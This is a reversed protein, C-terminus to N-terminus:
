DLLDQLAELIEPHKFQFGAKSLARPLVKQGNLLVDAFEGMVAKIMFGPAPLFAPKGLAKSLAKTLERNTVPNPSTLNFPGKLNPRAVFFSFADVLDQMHIWSLWQNGSGLPGGLGKRFIPLMQALAGGGAGLVIGFRALIVRAGAQEAKLAEGEWQKCLKALFDDGAASSEYLEQDGSFGYYGVASANILLPPEKWHNQAIAEVLNKTTEVRSNILIKKYKDDWREFISAGALNIIAQYGKVQEQWAGPQSPDALLISVGEPIRDRNNASRTLTTVIHRNTILGKILSKGVFGTGGTVLIEM